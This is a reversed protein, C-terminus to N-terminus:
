ETGGHCYSLRETHRLPFFVHQLASSRALMTASRALSLQSKAPHATSSYISERPIEVDDRCDEVVAAALSCWGLECETCERRGMCAEGAESVCVDALVFGEVADTRSGEWV